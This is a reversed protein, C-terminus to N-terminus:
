PNFFIYFIRNLKHNNSLRYAPEFNTLKKINNVDPFSKLEFIKSHIKEKDKKNIKKLDIIASKRINIKM